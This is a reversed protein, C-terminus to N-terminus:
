RIVPAPMSGALITGCVAVTHRRLDHGDELTVTEDPTPPPGMEVRHVEFVPGLQEAVMGVALVSRNPGAQSGRQREHPRARFGEKPRANRRQRTRPAAQFPLMM